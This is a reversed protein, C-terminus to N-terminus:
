ARALSQEGTTFGQSAQKGKVARASNPRPLPTPVRGRECGQRAGWGWPILEGGGGPSSTPATGPLFPRCGALLLNSLHMNEGIACNIVLLKEEKRAHFLIQCPARVVPVRQKSELLFGAVDPLSIVECCGQTCLRPSAIGPWAPFGLPAQDAAGRAVLVKLEEHKGGEGAGLACMAMSTQWAARGAGDHRGAPGTIGTRAMYFGLCPCGGGALRRPAPLLAQRCGRGPREEWGQSGGAAQEM